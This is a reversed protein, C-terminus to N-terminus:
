RGADISVAGDVLTESLRVGGEGPLFAGNPLLAHPSLPKCFDGTRRPFVPGVLITLQKMHPSRFGGDANSVAHPYTNLILKIRLAM